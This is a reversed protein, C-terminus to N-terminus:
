VSRLYARLIDYAGARVREPSNELANVLWDLEAEEEVGKGDPLLLDNPTVKLVACLRFMTNLSLGVAGRELDAILRWSRDACEALGEQTLGMKERYIRIHDAIVIRDYKAEAM